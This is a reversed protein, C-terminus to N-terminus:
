RRGKAKHLSPESWPRPSPLRLHHRGCRGCLWCTGRPGAWCRGPPRGWRSSAGTRRTVAVVSPEQLLIGRGRVAVLVSTTGLWPSIGPLAGQVQKDMDVSGKKRNTEHWLIAWASLSEWSIHSLREPEEAPKKPPTRCFAAAVVQRAGAQRLPAPRRM